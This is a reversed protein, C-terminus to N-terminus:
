SHKYFLQQIINLIRRFFESVKSIMKVSYYVNMICNTVIKWLDDVADKQDCKEPTVIGHIMATILIMILIM